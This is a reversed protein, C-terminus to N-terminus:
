WELGNETWCQGCVLNIERQTGVVFKRLEGCQKCRRKVIEMAM